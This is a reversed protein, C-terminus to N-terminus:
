CANNRSSIVTNCVLDRCHTKFDKSMEMLRSKVPKADGLASKVPLLSKPVKVDEVNEVSVPDLKPVTARVYEWPRLAGKLEIFRAM